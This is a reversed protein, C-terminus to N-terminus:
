RTQDRTSSSGAPAGENFSVIMRGLKDLDEPLMDSAKARAMALDAHHRAAARFGASGRGQLMSLSKQLRIQIELLHGGDRGMIMFADDFMDEDSLPRLHLRPYSVEEDARGRSWAILLRTLRGIVDLATGADNTASSLARSGIEAMVILGFRPDQEFTRQSSLIFQERIQRGVDDDVQGSVWALVTDDYVFAGANRPIRIQLDHADALDSLHAMDIFQIYGTALADIRVADAPPDQGALWPNAGLYPVALREEMAARAAGEVREITAGVRGLSILHNIWRLLQVVILVIVVITILFLVSRGRDGYSGTQLVITGVISFVFAGIFTSLVNHTLRDEMLLPTARPTVNATVAGFAATMAGLSFTTVALMSSSIVGLLGAVAERSINWPLEWPFVTEAALALFATVIGLLGYALAQWWLQRRIRGLIWQWYKM